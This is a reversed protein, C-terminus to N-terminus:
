LKHFVHRVVIIFTRKSIWDVKVEIRWHKNRCAFVVCSNTEGEWKLLLLPVWIWSWFTKGRIYIIKVENGAWDDGWGFEEMM